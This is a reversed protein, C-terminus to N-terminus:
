AYGQCDAGSEDGCELCRRCFNAASRPANRIAAAPVDGWDRTQPAQPAEHTAQQANQPEAAAVKPINQEAYAQIEATQPVKQPQSM